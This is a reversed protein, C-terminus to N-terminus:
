SMSGKQPLTNVVPIIHRGPRRDLGSGSVGVSDNTRVEGLLPKCLSLSPGRSYQDGHSALSHQDTAGRPMSGSDLKPSSPRM